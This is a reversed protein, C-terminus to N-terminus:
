QQGDVQRWSGSRIADAHHDRKYPLVPNAELWDAIRQEVIPIAALALREGNYPRQCHPMEADIGKAVAEVLDESM